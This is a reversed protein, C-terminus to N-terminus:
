EVPIDIGDGYIRNWRTKMGMRHCIVHDKEYCPDRPEVIQATIMAYEMGIGATLESPGIWDARHRDGGRRRRVRRQATPAGPASM